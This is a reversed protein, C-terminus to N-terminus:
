TKVIVISKSKTLPLKHCKMDVVFVPYLITSKEHETTQSYMKWCVAVKTILDGQWLPWKQQGLLIAMCKRIFFSYLLRMKFYDDWYFRKYNWGMLIAVQVFNLFNFAPSMDIQNVYM